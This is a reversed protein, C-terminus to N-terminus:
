LAVANGRIQEASFHAQRAVSQFDVPVRIALLVPAPEVDHVQDIAPTRDGLDGLNAPHRERCRLRQDIPQLRFTQDSVSSAHREWRHSTVMSSCRAFTATLWRSRGKPTSTTRALVLSMPSRRDLILALSIARRSYKFRRKSAMREM